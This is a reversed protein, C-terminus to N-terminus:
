MNLKRDKNLESGRKGKLTRNFHRLHFHIRINAYMQLIQTVLIQGHNKTCNLSNNFSESNKFTSLLQARPHPYPLSRSTSDQFHKEFYFCLQFVKESVRIMCNPKYEKITVLMHHNAEQTSLCLELCEVCSKPIKKVVFGCIYSVVSMEVPNCPHQENQTSQQLTKPPLSGSPPCQQPTEPLSAADPIKQLSSLINVDNEDPECNSKASTTLLESTFLSSALQKIASVYHQIMPHDNFGDLTTSGMSPRYKIKFQQQLRLRLVM